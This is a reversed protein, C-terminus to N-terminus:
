RAPRREEEAHNDRDARDPGKRSEESLRLREGLHRALVDLRHRSDPQAATEAGEAPSSGQPAIRAEAAVTAAQPEPRAALVTGPAIAGSSGAVPWAERECLLDVQFDIWEILELRFEGIAELLNAPGEEKSMVSVEVM